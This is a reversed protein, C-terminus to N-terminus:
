ARAWRCRTRSRTPSGRQPRRAPRHHSRDGSRGPAQPPSRDAAAADVSHTQGDIRMRVYGLARIEDWLNEYKEGVEVELPAMLYLKTGAPEAMIKDVIEDATQTGIPIDCDPCHPTGLRAMLIRLYDYIETVTGVTSRPTHGMHKQEIAIAPSLGEIHDLAPKQM